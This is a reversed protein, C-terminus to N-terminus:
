RRARLSAGGVDADQIAAHQVAADQIYTPTESLVVEVAYPGDLTIPLAANGDTWRWMAGDASCEPVHWGDKLARHDAGIVVVESRGRLTIARIAV